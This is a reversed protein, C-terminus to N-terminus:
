RRHPTRWSVGQPASLADPWGPFREGASPGRESRTDKRAAASPATALPATAASAASQYRTDDNSPPEPYMTTPRPRSPPMAPKGMPRTTLRTTAPRGFGPNRFASANAAPMMRPTAAGVGRQDGVDGPAEVLPEGGALVVLPEAASGRALQRRTDPALRPPGARLGGMARRSTGGDRRRAGRGLSLVELLQAEPDLVWAWPVGERAYIPLTQVRDFAVTEPTLVECVWDPAVPMVDLGALSPVRNRRWAARDPVVVDPGLHVEPAVHVWYGEPGPRGLDCAAGITAGLVTAAAGARPPLRRTGHLEGNVIEAIFLDPLAILDDYTAPRDFPPV